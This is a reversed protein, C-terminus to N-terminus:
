EGFPALQKRSLVERKVFVEIADRIATVEAPLDFAMASMASGQM